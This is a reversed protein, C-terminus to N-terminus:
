DASNIETVVVRDVVLAVPTTSSRTKGPWDGGMAVNFILVHSSAEEFPWEGGEPTDDRSWESVLEEDRYIQILSKMKVLKFYHFDSDDTVLHVTELKWSLDDHEQRPGHIASYHVNEDNIKEFIDIEGAGPWNEVDATWIAAHAGQLDIAKDTELSIVKGVILAEYYTPLKEVSHVEGSVWLGNEDRQAAIILNGGSVTVQAPDYRQEENNRPMWEQQPYALWKKPDLEGSEFDDELVVFKRETEPNHLISDSERPSAAALHGFRGAVTGALALGVVTRGLQRRSFKEPFVQREHNRLTM